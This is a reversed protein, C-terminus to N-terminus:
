KRFIPLGDNNPTHTGFLRRSHRANRTPFQQRRFRNSLNRTMVRQLTPEIAFDIAM